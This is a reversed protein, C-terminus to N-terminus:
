NLEEVIEVIIGDPDHCYIVKVKQDPSLQPAHNCHVGESCLLEYIQSINSVTIAIHSCGLKDSPNNCIVEGKKDSPYKYEILEVLVPNGPAGLKVWELEANEINVLKDIYPGKETERLVVKFGLLKEYFQLSKEIDRVVLGTHRIGKLM